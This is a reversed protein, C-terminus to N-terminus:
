LTNPCSFICIFFFYIVNIVPIRAIITATIVDQQSLNNFVQSLLFDCTGIAIFRQDNCLILIIRFTTFILFVQICFSQRDKDGILSCLIAQCRRKKFIIITTSFQRIRKDPDTGTISCTIGSQYISKYICSCICHNPM